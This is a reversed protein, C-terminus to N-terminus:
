LNVGKSQGNGVNGQELFNENRVVIGDSVNFLTKSPLDFAFVSCFPVCTTHHHGFGNGNLKM